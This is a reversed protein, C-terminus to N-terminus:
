LYDDSWGIDEGDGTDPTSPTAPTEPETPTSPVSVEPESPTSPTTETPPTSPQTTSTTGGGSTGGGSPQTASPTTTQSASEENVAPQNGPTPTTAPKPVSGVLPESMADTTETIVLDKEAELKILYDEEFDKLDDQALQFVDEAQLEEVPKVRNWIEGDYWEVYGERIRITIEINENQSEVITTQVNDSEEVEPQTILFKVAFGMMFSVMAVTILIIWYRRNM